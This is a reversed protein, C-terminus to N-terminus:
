AVLCCVVIEFLWFSKGFNVLSARRALFSAMSGGACQLSCVLHRDRLGVPPDKKDVGIPSPSEERGPLKMTLLISQYRQDYIIHFFCFFVRTQYKTELHYLMYVLNSQTSSTAIVFGGNQSSTLKSFPDDELCGINKDM